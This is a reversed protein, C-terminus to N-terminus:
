ASEEKNWIEIVPNLLQNSRLGDADHMLKKVHKYDGKNYYLEALYPTVTNTRTGSQTHLKEFYHISRDFEHTMLCCKGLLTNLAPDDPDTQLAENAYRDVEHAIFSVLDEDALEFYLMEWYLHALESAIASRKKSEKMDNYADLRRYIRSNINRELKDIIAFSYLRIEDNRDSLTKKILAIENKRTGEALSVLAKMKLADSVKESSLVHEMSAEGFIRQVEPFESYIESMDLTHTETLVKEYRVTNLYVIIWLTAIIGIIPVAINFVWFFLFLIGYHDSFRRKVILAAVAAVAVSFLSLALYFSTLSIHAELWAWSM